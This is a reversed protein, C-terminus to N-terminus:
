NEGMVVQDQTWVRRLGFPIRMPKSTDYKEPQRAAIIQIMKEVFFAPLRLSGYYAKEVSFTVKSNEAQFRYDVWITKKGSLIPKFLTPITGPKWKELADFDVISYTAVYNHPFVKVIVSNLGPRPTTRLAWQMYENIESSSIKFSVQRFRGAKKETEANRLDEFMTLFKKAVPPVPATEVGNLVGAFLLAPILWSRKM